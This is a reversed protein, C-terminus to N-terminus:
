RRWHRGVGGAGTPDALPVPCVGLSIVGLGGLVRWQLCIFRVGMAEAQLSAHQLAAAEAETKGRKPPSPQHPDEPEPKAEPDPQGDVPTPAQNARRPDRKGLAGFIMRTAVDEEEATVPPADAPPPGEKNTDGESRKRKLAAAARLSERLAQAVQGPVRCVVHARTGLLFPVQPQRRLGRVEMNKSQSSPSPAAAPPPVPPPPPVVIGGPRGLPILGQHPTARAMLDDMSAGHRREVGRVRRQMRSQEREDAARRRRFVQAAGVVTLCASVAVRRGSDHPV